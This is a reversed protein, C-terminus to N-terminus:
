GTRLWSAKVRRSPAVVGVQTGQPVLDIGQAASPMVRLQGGARVVTASAYSGDPSTLTVVFHAGEPVEFLPAITGYSVFLEREGTAVRQASVSQAQLAGTMKGETAEIKKFKAEEAEIRQAILEAIEAREATLNSVQFNPTKVALTGERSTDFRAMFGEAGDARETLRVIKEDVEGIRVELKGTREDLRGILREARAIRRQHLELRDEHEALTAQQADLRKGHESLQAEAARLQTQQEQIARTLLSSLQSYRVGELEGTSDNYRALLPSIAAVEEAIFGLDRRVNTAASGYSRWDFAVPRLRMVADLGLPLDTVNDKLARLSSCGALDGSSNRCVTTNTNATAPSYRIGGVVHLTQGVVTTGIGVRGDDTIVMRTLLPNLVAGSTASPAATQFAIDGGLGTGTGRGAQFFLAGGAINTGSPNTGRIVGSTVSSTAEGSGVVM